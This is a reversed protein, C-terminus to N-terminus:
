RGDKRGANIFADFQPLGMALEVANECGVPRCFGLGGPPTPM